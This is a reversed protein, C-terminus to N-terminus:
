LFERAFGPDLTIGPSMTTSISIRKFYPAKASAPRKRALIRVLEKLNEKLSELTFSSKGFPAHINGADDVRFEIRGAKLEEIIQEVDDTVTGSKPNPMLGRPGLIRGIRGVKGMMDPTAVAVDFDLWGEESIREILDDGGVYDAGADEAREALDGEAFVLITKEQGSGNPLVVSGRVMQDAHRPNVNLRIAADCSEDFNAYNVETLLEIGDDLKYQAAPDVQESADRYQKGHTAM